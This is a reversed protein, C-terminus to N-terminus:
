SGQTREIEERLTRISERLEKVALEAKMSLARMEALEADVQAEEALLLATDNDGEAKAEQAERMKEHATSLALPAHQEAGVEEAESVATSARTLHQDVDAISPGTSACGSLLLLVAAPVSPLVFSRSRERQITSQTM